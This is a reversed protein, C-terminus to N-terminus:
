TTLISNELAEITISPIQSSETNETRVSRRDEINSDISYGFCLSDYRDAIYM